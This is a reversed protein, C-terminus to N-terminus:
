AASQRALWDDRLLELIRTDWWRGQRFEHRRHVGISCYGVRELARQSATNGEIVTTVLKELNLEEFAYRTRLAHSQTAIGRRWWTRDGILIGTQARRNSWDIRHIATSGIHQGDAFLGWVVDKGSAATREFWAHEEALTPPYRMKLFRTVDADAFWHCYRELHEPELPALTVSAGHLIPGFM